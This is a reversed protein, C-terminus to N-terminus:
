TLSGDQTRELEDVLNGRVIDVVCSSSGLVSRMVNVLHTVIM